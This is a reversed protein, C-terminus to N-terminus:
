RHKFLETDCFRLNEEGTIKVGNISYGKIAGFGQVLPLNVGDDRLHVTGMTGNFYLNKNAKIRPTNLIRSVFTQTPHAQGIPDDTLAASVVCIEPNVYNLFSSSNSNYSRAGHHAAKYFTMDKINETLIQNEYDGSLDGTYLYSNEKFDLRCVVSYDNQNANGGLVTKPKAYQGTDIFELTLDESFRYQKSAQELGNVCNYVPFYTTGKEIFRKKVNEYSNSDSYGYDVILSIDNISNLAGNGFGGYHDAHAHTVILVDLIKDTCYENLMQNVTAGDAYQGADILMDFNGSRIYISDGYEYSMELVYTDLYSSTNVKFTEDYDKTLSSKTFPESSFTYVTKLSSIYSAFGSTSDVSISTVEDDFTIEVELFSSSNYLYDRNLIYNMNKFYDEENPNYYDLKAIGDKIRFDDIKDFIFSLGLSDYTFNKSGYGITSFLGGKSLIYKGDEYVIKSGNDLSSYSYQNESDINTIRTHTTSSLDKEVVTTVGTITTYSLSKAVLMAAAFDETSDDNNNKNEDTPKVCSTFVLMLLVLGITQFIRKM